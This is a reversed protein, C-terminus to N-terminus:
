YFNNVASNYGLAIKGYMDRVVSSGTEQITYNTDNSYFEDNVYVYEILELTTQANSSGNSPIDGIQGYIKAWCSEKFLDGGYYWERSIIPTVTSSSHLSQIGIESDVTSENNKQTTTNNNEM